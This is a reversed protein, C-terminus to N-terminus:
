WVTWPSYFLWSSKALGVKFIGGREGRHKGRPRSKNGVKLLILRPTPLCEGGGGEKEFNGLQDNSSARGGKRATEINCVAVDRGVEGLIV